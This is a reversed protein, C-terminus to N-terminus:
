ETVEALKNTSLELNEEKFHLPSIDLLERTLSDFDDRVSSKKLTTFANKNEDTINPVEQAYQVTASLVKGELEPDNLLSVVAKDSLITKGSFKNLYVKYKIQKVYHSNLIDVEEKLIKLGKASFKDPNLPALIEDAYLSAATVAQGMTPPCDIFIFDYNDEIPSLLNKYLKDLPLRANVIENDLIVNEIRSPILDLGPAINVVCQQISAQRKLVDILVPMSEADVGNADTLNGQPDADIKLVRAGYTNACSGINDITTTKGTGGKVIQVAIKKKKFKYGFLIKATSFTLFTKNGIKECSINKNKLQKHVAQTSIGLYEAIDAVSRKPYNIYNNNTDM